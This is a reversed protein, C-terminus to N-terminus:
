NLLYILCQRFGCFILRLISLGNYKETQNRPLPQLVQISFHHLWLHLWHHLSACSPPFLQVFIHWTMRAMEAVAFYAGESGGTKEPKCGGSCQHQIAQGLCSCTEPINFLFCFACSNRIIDYWKWWKWSKFHQFQWSIDTDIDFHRPITKTLVAANHAYCQKFLACHTSQATHKGELRVLQSM